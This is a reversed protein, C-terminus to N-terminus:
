QLVQIASYYENVKGEAVAAAIDVDGASCLNGAARVERRYARESRAATREPRRM